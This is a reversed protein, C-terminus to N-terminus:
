KSYAGVKSKAYLILGVLSISVIRMTEGKFYKEINNKTSIHTKIFAKTDLPLNCFYIITM